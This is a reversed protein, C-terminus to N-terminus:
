VVGRVESSLAAVYAMCSSVTLCCSSDIADDDDDDDDDDDIDVDNDDDDDYL